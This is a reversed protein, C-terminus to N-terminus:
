LPMEQQGPRQSIIQLYSELENLSAFRKDAKQEIFPTPDRSAEWVIVIEKTSAAAHELESQVGGAILPSGDTDVPFYAVIMDSQDILRYDRAVVQGDIDDAIAEIEQLNLLVTKGLVTCELDTAESDQQKRQRMLDPLRKESIMLPDFATLYSRALKRYRTVNEWIRPKAQADSIPYSIYAKRKWPEFM